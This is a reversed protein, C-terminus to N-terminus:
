TTASARRAFSIISPNVLRKFDLFHMHIVDRHTGANFTITDEGALRSDVYVPLSFLNGFPPMAGLECTPFLEGLEAETALRLRSLGLDQRLQELDVVSDSPLVAMGYGQESLFLVTKAMERAPVHEASAVERATYALPHVTHTYDVQNQDLFERLKTLIPM